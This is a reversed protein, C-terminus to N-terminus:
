CGPGSSRAPWAGASPRCAARRASASSRAPSPTRPASRSASTRPSAPDGVRRRDGGRVREGAAAEHDALGDHPHHAVRRVAHRARHGRPRDPDGLVPRLVPRAPLRRHVAPRRHHGDDEARRQRRPEPQLPGGVRTAPAPVVQGGAGPSMRRFLWYIAVMLGLGAVLGIMPSLSSSSSRRADVGVPHHGLLGGQHRRRRRLRRHARAVLQDAPGLVLHDSGLRDRGVLGAFIM